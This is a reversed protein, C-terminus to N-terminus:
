NLRKWQSLKREARMNGVRAALGDNSIWLKRNILGRICDQATLGYAALFAAFAAEEDDSLRVKHAHSLRRNEKDIVRPMGAEKRFKRTFTLGTRESRFGASILPQTVGPFRKKTKELITKQKERM